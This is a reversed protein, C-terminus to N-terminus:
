GGRRAHPTRPAIRVRTVGVVAHLGPARRADRHARAHASSPDNGPSFRCGLILRAACGPPTTAMAPGADRTRVGDASRGRRMCGSGARDDGSPVRGGGSPSACRARPASRVRMCGGALRPASCIARRRPTRPGSPSAVKRDSRTSRGDPAPLRSGTHHAPMHEHGGRSEVRRASSPPSSAIAPLILDQKNRRVSWALPDPRTQGSSVLWGGRRGVWM